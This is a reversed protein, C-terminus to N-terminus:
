TSFRRDEIKKIRKELKKIEKKRARTNRLTTDQPKKM